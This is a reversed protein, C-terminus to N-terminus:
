FISGITYMQYLIFVGVRASIFFPNTLHVLRIKSAMTMEMAEKKKSFRTKGKGSLTSYEVMM